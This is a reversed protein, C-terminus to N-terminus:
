ALNDGPGIKPELIGSRSVKQDKCNTCKYLVEAINHQFCTAIVKALVDIVVLDKGEDSPDLFENYFSKTVTDKSLV